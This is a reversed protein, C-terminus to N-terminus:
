QKKLSAIIEGFDFVLPEQMKPHLIELRIALLKIETTGKIVKAGYKEDNVIPCGIGAFSARIQHFRGTELEISVFSNNGVAEILKYSLLSSKSEAVKETHFKAIRNKKDETIWGDIRGLDSIPKGEILACYIKKTKKEAFQNNLEKLGSRTKAMIVLGSVIVDLRHVVGIFHKKNQPFLAQEHEQAFDELSPYSPHREVTYGAPKYLVLLYYDEFIVQPVKAFSFLEPSYQQM